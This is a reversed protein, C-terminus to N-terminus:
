MEEEAEWSGVSLYLGRMMERILEIIGLKMDKGMPM